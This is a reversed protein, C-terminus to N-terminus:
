VHDDLQRNRFIFFAVIGGLVAGGLGYAINEVYDNDKDDTIDEINDDISTNIDGNNDNLYDNNNNYNNDYNNDNNDIVNDNNNNLDNDVDDDIGDNDIDENDVVNDNKNVDNDTTQASVNQYNFIMLALFLIIVLGFFRKMKEGEKSFINNVFHSFKNNNNRVL